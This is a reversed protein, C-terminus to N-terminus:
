DTWRFRVPGLRRVRGDRARLEVALAHFATEEAPRPVVATFGARSCDGLFPHAAAVDPRALRQVPAVFGDPSISVRVEVEGGPAKAWGSITLPGRVASGERPADLSGPITDDNVDSRWWLAVPPPVQDPRTSRAPVRLGPAVSRILKRTSLDLESNLVNWVQAPDKELAENFGSAGVMAGLFHIFFSAAIAVRLLAVAARRKELKPYSLALFITLLPAVETLLRYGFTSGGWWMRWKAYILIVLVIGALLYRPLRERGDAAPRATRFVAPLAFLFFPSFVFLGRSPSFLLGALGPLLPGGFDGPTVFQPSAFPSGLYVAAYWAYLLAPIAALAAFPFFWRREYRVVYVALPLAIAIDTPRTVVAFGLALGAWPVARGGRLLAWLGATLFFLSPAHQFMARSAVSWATTGFAYVLAFGLAVPRSRCLRELALYLFFVSLASLISATLGSLLQARAELDVGLLKAAGYVPINLVGPLVPYSSVIRGRVPRFWYPLTGERPAFERFDFGNGHFIAIPLLEAPTADGRGQFRLGFLYVYVPLLLALWPALMALTLRRRLLTDQTM